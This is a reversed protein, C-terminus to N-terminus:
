GQPSVIAQQTAPSPEAREPLGALLRLIREAARTAVSRRGNEGHAPQRLWMTRKGTIRRLGVRGALVSVRAARRLPARGLRWPDRGDRPWHVLAPSRTWSGGGLVVGDAALDAAWTEWRKVLGIGNPRMALRGRPPMRDPYDHRELIDHCIAAAARQQRPTLERRWVALRSSDPREAAKALWWESRDGIAAAAEGQELMRPDFPEGLFDCLRRLEPEPKAVLDEFRMTLLRRDRRIIPETKDSLRACEYLNVILSSGGFPARMVSLAVDRPDRVIRVIPAEPFAGRLRPLFLIHRPSKEAWRPKGAARAYASTITELMAAISPERRALADHVQARDLGYLEYFPVGRRQNSSLHEVARGPWHAPDLLNSTDRPLRMFFATEPGCAFAPHAGLMATLLTTGSRPLGVIFVPQTDAM